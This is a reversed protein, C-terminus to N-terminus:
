RTRRCSVVVGLPSDLETGQLHLEAARVPPGRMVSVSTGSKGSTTSVRADLQEALSAVISTGLGRRAAPAPAAKGVGNDTVSLTWNDGTTVYAVIITRGPQETPFAHKLANIVLETVILGLSVATASSVAGRAESVTLEIKADGIMSGALSACLQVLYTQLQIAEGAAGAQLHRQVAAVALVRNHADELHERTEESNVTRAKLLLISAIIQLSNAVRHQMEELLMDKQRMLLDREMEAVRRETIDEFAVLISSTDHEAYFVKRANLLMVRPGIKPFECEVEYAEVVSDDPAVRALLMRLPPIDWAGGGLEYLLSGLTQQPDVDFVRCFSRSAVIVRLDRDLVLLPEHITDVIAQAFAHADDVGPLPRSSSM